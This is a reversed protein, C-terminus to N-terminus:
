PEVFHIRCEISYSMFIHPTYLFLGICYGSYASESVTVAATGYGSGGDCIASWRVKWGMEVPLIILCSVSIRLRWAGLAPWERESDRLATQRRRRV